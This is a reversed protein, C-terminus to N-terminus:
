FVMAAVGPTPQMRRYNRITHQRRYAPFSIFIEAMIIILDILCIILSNTMKKRYEIWQSERELM